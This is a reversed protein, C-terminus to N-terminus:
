DYDESDKDKAKTSSNFKGDIKVEGSTITLTLGAAKVTIKSKASVVVNAGQIKASGGINFTATTKFSDSVEGGATVKRSGYTENLSARVDIGYSKAKINKAGGVEEIAAGGVNVAGSLGALANWSGGILTGATGTVVRSQHEICATMKAGGVLRVLSASQNTQNGGINFIRAGGIMVSESACSIEKNADVNVTRSAGISYTQSGVVGVEYVQGVIVTRKAGITVTDNIGISTVKDNETKENWDKTANWAMKENGATDNLTVFHSSGGGPTTPTGFSSVVKNGPQGHPPPAQGNMLRGLEIPTDGGTGWFTQLTEWGVRPLLFGGSLAPQIVRMWASATDDKPQRRDWRFHAKVQGYGETHLEAGSAGCVDMTQVTGIRPEPLRPARYPSDAPVARFTATYRREAAATNREAIEHAVELLLWRGNKEERQAGNSTLVKGASLNQSNTTGRLVAVDARAEELRIKALDQGVGPDSYGGRYEYRELRGEGEKAEVTLDVRPKEFDYDRMSLKDTAKARRLTASLISRGTVAGGADRVPLPDGAVDDFASPADAFVVKDKEDSLFWVVGEQALIRTVFDLVSEFTQVCQDRKALSRSVRSDVQITHEGLIEKAIEVADKDLYLRHDQTQKLLALRPVLVLRFGRAQEEVEALVGELSRESGDDLPFTLKANSAVLQDALEASIESGDAAPRCVIEFRYPARVREVGQVEHVEWTLEVGDVFLQAAQSELTSM